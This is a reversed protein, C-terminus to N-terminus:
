EFEGGSIVVATGFLIALGTLVFEIPNERHIELIGPEIPLPRKGLRDIEGRTLGSLYSNTLHALRTSVALIDGNVSGGSSVLSEFAAVYVIRFLRFFEALDSIPIPGPESLITAQVEEVSWQSTSEGPM